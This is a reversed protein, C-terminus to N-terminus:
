DMERQSSYLLIQTYVFGHFKKIIQSKYRNYICYDFIIFVYLYKTKEKVRDSKGVEVRLTRLDLYNYYLSVVLCVRSVTM